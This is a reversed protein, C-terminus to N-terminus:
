DIFSYNDQFFSLRETIPSIYPNNKISVFIDDPDSLYVVNIVTYQTGSKNVVSRGVFADKYGQAEQYRQAEQVTLVQEM